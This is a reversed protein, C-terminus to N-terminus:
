PLSYQDADFYGICGDDSVIICFGHEEEYQDYTYKPVETHTGNSFAFYYYFRENNGSGRAEKRLYKQVLTVEEAHPNYTM